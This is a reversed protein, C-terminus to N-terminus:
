EIPLPCIKVVARKLFSQGIQLTVVRCIGDPGPHLAHVRALRWQLPPVNDDRLVVIMGERIPSGRDSFWKTAQQIHHLYELSWRKWFQQISQQILRWRVLRSPNEDLLSIDPISTLPEGILFHSPTLPLPDKADASLVCLPRSNLIAEIQCLLTHMEDYTLTRTGIVRHLHHKFSKVGAEFIGGFHSALPPQFHWSIGQGLVKSNLTTQVVDNRLFSYLEKLYRDCGVFNRGCDSYIDTCLGRRSVFRRLTALFAETSLESVIELHIAKVSMCVFVAVYCKVIKANRVKNARVYFPGAFDVSTKIFPRAPRLRVAPLSGMSPQTHAPKARFCRVCRHIRQRIVDRGSLIWYRQLLTFHTSQSGAHLTSVHTDDIILYTLQHKKPLILQHKSEFPLLSKHIRGGVRLLQNSDVFPNLRKLQNSPTKGNSIKLIDDNFVSHQVVRILRNLAFNYEPVTIHKPCSINVKRCKNYFRFILATVRVLKGLSSFRSIIEVDEVPTSTSSCLVINRKEEDTPLIPKPVPWCSEEQSLWRPGRFWIEHNLFAAPLMGRSAADAPNDASPVHRWCRAPVRNTIETIRNSVFTKWEHPASRLWSLVISSDSWAYVQDDNIRDGYSKLVKQILQSLLVGGMLELRPISVRRTPAVRTKGLLLSVHVSGDECVVRLFVCAAYAKESADSFGHLQVSCNQPFVHRPFSIQSLLTLQCTFNTWSDIIEQPPPEDWDVNSIWLLQILHKAFLTVPSLLGLPDYIRAVESLISRKTCKESFVKVSFSFSDSNPDWQLGLVKTSSDNEMQAFPVNERREGHSYTPQSAILLASSNSHWKHLEFGASQCISILEQQLSLARSEDSEGSVVDDVFVDSMLVQSARPFRAAEDRALQQITRLALYPSSSVGFTVTCLRYDRLPAEPSTRWVIRQFDRDSERILINRYMQKIDATFAVSHIRFKLLVDVIDLHLKPGVLLNDNLSFGSTTKSGADYVVRTKTTESSEKVVAHHPIYYTSAAAAPSDVPEMHGLELYEQLCAHYDRKLQSNRELKYELKRFRSIAIDRSEGLPPADPKFPLAVVYRGCENRTHTNEFISECLLEDPTLSKQESITELEWFRQLDFDDNVSSHCVQVPLSVEISSNFELKGLLLYGFISNMAIPSGPLGTITNHLLIHPLIDAGLLMEVPQPTHFSPDALTLNQIHSWGTNPLQCTPMQTTILKPLILAEVQISPQSQNRPSIFCSVVGKPYVPKNDNIGYVPLNNVRKRSIGLRQACAESIFTAQSGTDILCRVTSLKQNNDYVDVLATSLLVTSTRVNSANSATNSCGVVNDRTSTMALQTDTSCSPVVNNCEATPPLSFSQSNGSSPDASKNVGVINKDFHILTHHRKQCNRCSFNSKCQSVNHGLHLCNFCINKKQIFSFRDSVSLNLFKSCKTLTHQAHCLLCTLHTRDGQKYPPINSSLDSTPSAFNAAFARRQLQHAAAVEGRSPAVTSNLRGGKQSLHKSSQGFNNTSIEDAALERELFSILSDVKPIDSSSKLSLEFQKRVSVPIKRLLIHLLIFSWESTPFKMVELPKINEQFTNLLHRLDSTSKESCSPINIIKDLHHSAIIRKNEYRSTLIEIASSYNEDTIPISKVLNYPENKLTLLLYRFKEADTYATNHHVLSCFLDFYSTWDTSEGSFSPLPLTPLKANTSFESNALPRSMRRGREEFQKLKDVQTVIAYYADDFDNRIKIQEEKNFSKSKILCKEIKTQLKSFKRQHASLDKTRSIFKQTDTTAFQLTRKLDDLILDREFIDQVCSISNDLSLESDEVKAQAM